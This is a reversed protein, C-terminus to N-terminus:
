IITFDRSGPRLPASSSAGRWRQAGVYICWQIHLPAISPKSMSKKMSQTNVLHKTKCLFYVFGRSPSRVYVIAIRVQLPSFSPMQLETWSSYNVEYMDCLCCVCTLQVALYIAFFAYVCTCKDLQTLELLTPLQSLRATHLCQGAKSIRSFQATIQGLRNSLRKSHRQM